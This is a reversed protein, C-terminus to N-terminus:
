KEHMINIQFLIYTDFIQLNDQNEDNINTVMIKM